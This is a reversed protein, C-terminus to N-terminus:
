KYINFTNKNEKEESESPSRAGPTHTYHSRYEVITKIIKKKFLFFFTQNFNLLMLRLVPHMRVAQM